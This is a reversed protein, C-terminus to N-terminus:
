RRTSPTSTPASRGRRPEATSPVSSPTEIELYGEANLTDRVAPHHGVLNRVM